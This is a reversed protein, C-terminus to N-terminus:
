PNLAFFFFTERLPAFVGLPNFIFIDTDMQSFGRGM